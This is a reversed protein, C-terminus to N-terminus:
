NGLNLNRSSVSSSTSSMPRLSSFASTSFSTSSSSSLGIAQAIESVAMLMQQSSAQYQSVVSGVGVGRAGAALALPATIATLGSSCMVPIRVARSLAYASAITPAAVQIM